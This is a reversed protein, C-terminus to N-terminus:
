KNMEYLLSVLSISMSVVALVYSLYVSSISAKGRQEAKWERLSLVEARLGAAEAHFESTLANHSALFETKTIVDGRLDNLVSLRHDLVKEADRLRQNMLEKALELAQQQSDLRSELHERLTVLTDSCKARPETM